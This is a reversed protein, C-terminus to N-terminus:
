CNLGKCNMRATETIWDHLEAVNTYVGPRKREACGYGWSVVGIQRGNAVLPGGSDGQCSDKGGADYGACIMRETIEEKPYRKQCKNRSIIPVLVQYLKIPLPGNVSLTGWGTVIAQTDEKAEETALPIYQMYKSYTLTQKLILIAIDYDSNETNYKPHVSIDRVAILLGGEKVTNSGLRVAYEFYM